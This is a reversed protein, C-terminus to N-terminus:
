IYSILPVLFAIMEDFKPQSIALRLVRSLALRYNEIVVCTLKGMEICM